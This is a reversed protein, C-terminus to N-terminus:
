GSGTEHDWFSARQALVVRDHELAIAVMPDPRFGADALCDVFHLRAALVADYPAVHHAAALAADYADAYALACQAIARYSKPM